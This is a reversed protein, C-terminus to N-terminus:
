DDGRGRRSERVQELLATLDDVRSSIRAAAEPTAEEDKVLDQLTRLLRESRKVADGLDDDQLAEILAVLGEDITEAGATSLEGAAVEDQVSTIVARVAGEVTTPAPPPEPAPPEEVPEAAEEAPAPESAPPDEDEPATETPAVETPDAAVTPEVTPETSARLARNAVVLLLLVSAVIAAAALPRARAWARTREWASAEGPETGAAMAATPEASAPGPGDGAVAAGAAAGAAAPGALFPVGPPLTPDDPSWAVTPADIGDAPPLVQTPDSPAAPPIAVTPEDAEPVGLLGTAFAAASPTRSAPDKVLAGAIADAVHRPLEPRRHRVDPPPEHVHKHVVVVPTDGEFTSQGTLVEVALCGLAYVDARADVPRGQAQEPALTSLSGRITMTTTADARTSRAIGFDTVKPIGGPGILVNAAKVDRHVLGADHAAQLGAAIGAILHVGQEVPLAGRDRLVDALTDGPVHEMVLVHMGDAELFDHVAVVNPHSLAAAARAERRFREVANPDGAVHGPLLKLAVIRDLQHDHARHVEGMGGRGLLELLEYRGAIRTGPRM